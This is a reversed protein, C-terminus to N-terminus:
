AWRSCVLDRHKAVGGEGVSGQDEKCRGEGLLSGRGMRSEVCMLKVLNWLSTLDHLKTDQSIESLATGKLGMRPTKKAKTKSINTM